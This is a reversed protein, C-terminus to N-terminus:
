LRHTRHAADGYSRNVHAEDENLSEGVDSVTADWALTKGSLKSVKEEDHEVTTSPDSNTPSAASCTAMVTAAKDDLPAMDLSGTNMDLAMTNSSIGVEGVLGEEKGRKERRNGEEADDAIQNTASEIDTMTVKGFLGLWDLCHPQQRPAGKKRTDDRREVVATDSRRRVPLVANEQKGKTEPADKEEKKKGENAAKTYEYMWLAMCRNEAELELSSSLTM